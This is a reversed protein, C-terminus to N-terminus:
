NKKCVSLLPVTLLLNGFVTVTWGWFFVLGISSITAMSAFSFVMFLILSVILVDISKIYGERINETFSKDECKVSKLLNSVLITNLIILGFMGAFGNLSIEVKTLRILILFLAIPM